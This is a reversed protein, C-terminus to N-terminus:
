SPRGSLSTKGFVPLEKTWHDAPAVRLEQSLPFDGYRRDSSTDHNCAKALRAILVRRAGIFQGRCVTEEEVLPCRERTSQVILGALNGHPVVGLFQRGQHHM